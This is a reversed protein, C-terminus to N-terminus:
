TVYGPKTTIDQTDPITVGLASLMQRITQVTFPTQATIDGTGDLGVVLGYGVLQNPREGAIDTIEKIRQANADGVAMTQTLAVVSLALLFKPFSLFSKKM